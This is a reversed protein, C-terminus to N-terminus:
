QGTAQPLTVRVTTGEGPSSCLRVWGGALAALNRVITLGLGNGSLEDFNSGRFLPEFVKDQEDPLIGIGHDTVSITMNEDYVMVELLIRDGSFKLANNLLHLLINFTVLEDLNVRPDIGLIRVTVRQDSCTNAVVTDCLRAIDFRTPSYTAQYDMTQFVVLIDDLMTVMRDVGQHIQAAHMARRQPTLQDYYRTLLESSSKLLTLPTRFEHSLRTLIHRKGANLEREKQLTIELRERQLREAETNKREELERQLADLEYLVRLSNLRDQFHESMLSAELEERKRAHELAKQYNGMQEYTISFERHIGGMARIDNLEAAKDAARQLYDLATSYDQLRTAIMAMTHYAAVVRTDHQEARQRAEEAYAAGAEIEGLDASAKALLRLASVESFVYEYRRAEELAELAVERARAFQKKAGYLGALNNLAESKPLELGHEDIVAISRHLYDMGQEFQGSVWYQRGLSNYAYHILEPHNHTKGIELQRAAAEVAMQYDGLQHYCLFINGLAFGEEISLNHQHALALGDKAPIVSQSFNGVHNLAWALYNLCRARGSPYMITPDLALATQALRAVHKYDSFRLQHMQALLEDISQVIAPNDAQIPKM